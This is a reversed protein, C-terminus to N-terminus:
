FLLQEDGTLIQVLPNPQFLEWFRRTCHEHKDIPIGIYKFMVDTSEDYGLAKARRCMEPEGDAAFAVNGVPVFALIPFSLALAVTVAATKAARIGSGIDLRSFYFM